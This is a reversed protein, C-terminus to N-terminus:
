RNATQPRSASVGLAEAFRTAILDWSSSRRQWNRLREAREALEAASIGELLEHPAVLWCIPEPKSTNAFDAVVNLGHAAYAMFASSKGHSLEDQGFIGFSSASLADSIAAEPQLGRQEFGDALPLGSLLRHEERDLESDSDAGLSIIKTIQKGKALAGLSSEMRRLARVRTPQLGFLVASHPKRLLNAADEGPRINPGVPLVHVVVDPFLRRLHEAQSATSTFVVDAHGLLQKIARRHFLQVLFNKNTMPWFTWIEHFMMVLRGSTRKKWDILARILVRPYGFRDFGYASYQVLVQGGVAPLQKLIAGSTAALEDVRYQTRAGSLGMSPVLLRLDGMPRLHELLRTIYDGVGGRGATLEPTITVIEDSVDGGGAAYM